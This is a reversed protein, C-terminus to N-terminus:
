ESLVLIYVSTNVETYADKENRERTAMHIYIFINKTLTYSCLLTKIVFKICNRKWKVDKRAKENHKINWRLIRSCQQVANKAARYYLTKNNMRGLDKKKRGLCLWEGVVWIKNKKLKFVHNKCKKKIIFCASFRQGEYSWLRM